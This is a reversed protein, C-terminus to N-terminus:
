ECTCGSLGYCQCALGSGSGIGPGNKCCPPLTAGCRAGKLGCITPGMLAAKLIRQSEELNMLAAKLIRAVNKEMSAGSREHLKYASTVFVANVFTVYVVLLGFRM